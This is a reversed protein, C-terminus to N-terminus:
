GKPQRLMTWHPIETGPLKDESLVEFGYHEYMAVNSARNTYLYIPMQERDCRALMPRMLRSAYGKGQQDPDVGLPDLFWHPFPTQEHHLNEIFTNIPLQKRLVGLGSKLALSPARCRILHLLTREIRTSYVWAAAGELASTPAYVEGFLVGYRVIFEFAYKLKKRRVQPDPFFAVSHVDEFFARALMAGAPKIDARTLRYLEELGSM